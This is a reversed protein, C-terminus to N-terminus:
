TRTVLGPEAQRVRRPRASRRRLPTAQRRGSRRHQRLDALWNGANRALRRRRLAILDIAPAVVLWFPMWGFWADMGRLAPFCLLAACGVVFWVQLAAIWPADTATASRSFAETAAIM